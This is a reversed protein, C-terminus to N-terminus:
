LDGDLEALNKKWFKFRNELKEYTGKSEIYTIVDLLTMISEIGWTRKIFKLLDFQNQLSLTKQDVVGM